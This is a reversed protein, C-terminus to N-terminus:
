IKWFLSLRKRILSEMIWLECSCHLLSAIQFLSVTSHFHKLNMCVSILFSSSSGPVLHFWRHCCPSLLSSLCFVLFEYSSVTRAVVNGLLNCFKCYNNDCLAGDWISEASIVLFPISGTFLCLLSMWLAINHTFIM